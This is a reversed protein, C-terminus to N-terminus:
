LLETIVERITDLGIVETLRASHGELAQGFNSAHTGATGAAQSTEELLYRLRERVREFADIDRTLVFQAHMRLVDADTLAVGAAIREELVRTLEPNIGAVHEYWLAYSPPHYAASQSAMLALATRLIEASEQKNQQYRM